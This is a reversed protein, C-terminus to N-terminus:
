WDLGDMLRRKFTLDVQLPLEGGRARDLPLGKGGRVVGRGRQNVITM